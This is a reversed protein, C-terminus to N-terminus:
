FDEKLVEINSTNLALILIDHVFCQVFSIIEKKNSLLNDNVYIDHHLTFIETEKNYSLVSIYKSNFQNVKEYVNTIADNFKVNSLITIYKVSFENQKKYKILFNFDGLSSKFLIYEENDEIVEYSFKKMFKSINELFRVINMNIVM